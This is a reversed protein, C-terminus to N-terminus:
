SRKFNKNQDVAVVVEQDEAVLVEQVEEVVKVDVM